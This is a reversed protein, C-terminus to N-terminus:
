LSSFDDWGCACEGKAHNVWMLIPTMMLAGYVAGWLCYPVVLSKFKTRYFDKTGRAVSAYGRDFFFGSVMFFFPVAWRQLYGIWNGVRGAWLPDTISELSNSHIVVVAVAGLFAMVRIKLSADASTYSSNSM